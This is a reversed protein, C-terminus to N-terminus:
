LISLVLNVQMDAEEPRNKDDTSSIQSMLKEIYSQLKAYGQIVM